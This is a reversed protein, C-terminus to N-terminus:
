KSLTFMLQFIRTQLWGSESGWLSGIPGASACQCIRISGMPCVLVVTSYPPVLLIGCDHAAWAWMHSATYLCHCPQQRSSLPCHTSLPLLSFGKAFSRINQFQFFRTPFGGSLEWKTRVWSDRVAEGWKLHYAGKQFSSPFVPCGLSAVSAIHHPLPNSLKPSVSRATNNLVM